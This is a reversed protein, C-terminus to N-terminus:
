GDTAEVGLLAGEDLLGSVEMIRLLERAQVDIPMERHSTMVDVVLDFIRRKGPLAKDWLLSKWVQRPNGHNNASRVVAKTQRIVPPRGPAGKTAKLMVAGLARNEETSDLGAAWVDDVVFWPRTRALQEIIAMAQQEWSPPQNALAVRAAAHGESLADSM